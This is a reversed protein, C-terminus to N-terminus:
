ELLLVCVCSKLTHTYTYAYEDCLHLLNPVYMHCYVYMCRASFFHLTCLPVTSMFFPWPECSISSPIPAHPCVLLVNVQLLPLNYFFPPSLTPFLPLPFPPYTLHTPSSLCLWIFCSEKKFAREWRKKSTIKKREETTDEDHKGFMGASFRLVCVCRIRGRQLTHIDVFVGLGGLWYIYEM